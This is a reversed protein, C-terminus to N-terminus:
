YCLMMTLFSLCYFQYWVIHHMNNVFNCIIVNSIMCFIFLRISWTMKMNESQIRMFCIMTEEVGKRSNLSVSICFFHQRPCLTIKRQKPNLSLHFHRSEIYKRPIHVDYSQFNKWSMTSYVLKLSFEVLM